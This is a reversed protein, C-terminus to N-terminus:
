LYGRWGGYGTREVPRMLEGMMTWRERKRAREAPRRAVAWGDMSPVGGRTASMDGMSARPVTGPRQSDSPPVMLVRAVATDHPLFRMSVNARPMSEAMYWRQHSPERQPPQSFSPPTMMVSGTGTEHM